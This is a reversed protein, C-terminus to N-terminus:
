EAGAEDSVSGLVYGILCLLLGAVILGAAVSVMGVGFAVAILGLFWAVDSM